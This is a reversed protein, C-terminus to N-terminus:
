DRSHMVEEFITLDVSGTPGSFTLIAFQLFIRGIVGILPHGYHKRIDYPDEEYSSSVDRLAVADIPTRMTINVGDADVSPLCFKVRYKSVQVRGGLAFVETQGTTTLNLQKAIDEDIMVGPAGPDLLFFGSSATDLDEKEPHQLYGPVLPGFKRCIEPDKEVQIYLPWKPSYPTSMSEFGKM